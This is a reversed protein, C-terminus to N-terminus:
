YDRIVPDQLDARWDIHAAGPIHGTDYLLIDENSEIIRIGEDNLHNELWDTEVLAEPHAYQKPNTAMVNSIESAKRCSCSFKAECISHSCDNLERSFRGTPAALRAVACIRAM